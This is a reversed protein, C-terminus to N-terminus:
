PQATEVGAGQGQWRGVEPLAEPLRRPASCRAAEGLAKCERSQPPSQPLHAEQLLVWLPCTSSLAPTTWFPPSAQYCLITSYSGSAPCKATDGQAGCTLLKGVQSPEMGSRGSLLQLVPEPVQTKVLGAPLMIVAPVTGEAREHTM